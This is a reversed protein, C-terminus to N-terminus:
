NNFIFLFRGQLKRQLSTPRPEVRSPSTYQRKLLDIVVYSLGEQHRIVSSSGVRGLLAYKSQESVYSVPANRSSVYLYSEAM